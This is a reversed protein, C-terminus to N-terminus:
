RTAHGLEVEVVRRHVRALRGGQQLGRVVIV